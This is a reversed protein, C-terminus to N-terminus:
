MWNNNCHWIGQDAAEYETEFKLISNDVIM